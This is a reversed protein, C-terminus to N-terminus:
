LNDTELSSLFDDVTRIPAGTKRGPKPQTFDALKDDPIGILKGIAFLIIGSQSVRINKAQMERAVRTVAYAPVSASTLRMREGNESTV